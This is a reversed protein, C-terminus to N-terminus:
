VNQRSRVLQRGQESSLALYSFVELEIVKTAILDGVGCAVWLQLRSFDLHVVCLCDLNPKLINRQILGTLFCRSQSHVQKINGRIHFYIDGRCAMSHFRGNKIENHTITKLHVLSSHSEKAQRQSAEDFEHM